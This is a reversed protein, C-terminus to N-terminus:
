DRHREATAFSRPHDILSPVVLADYNASNSHGAEQAIAQVVDDFPVEDMAEINPSPGYEYESELIRFMEQNWILIHRFDRFPGVLDSDGQTFRAGRSDRHLEHDQSDSQSGDSMERTAELEDPGLRCCDRVGFWTVLDNATPRLRPNSDTMRLMIGVDLEPKDSDQNFSNIDSFLDNLAGLSSGYSKEPTSTLLADLTHKLLSSSKPQTKAKLYRSTIDLKFTRSEEAGIDVLAAFMELFVCGLSFVDAALGRRDSQTVEPAAYKRTFMTRGDTEAAEVSEYCKSIGFDSIYVKSVYVDHSGPVEQWGSRVLINQPKIDMHKTINLHIHQLANSLCAFFEQCSIVM